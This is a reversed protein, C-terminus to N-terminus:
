ATLLRFLVAATLAVNTGTMWKLVKMDSGIGSMRSEFRAIEEAADRAIEDPAGAVKLADYTKPLMVAITVDRGKTYGQDLDHSRSIHPVPHQASLGIYRNGNDAERGEGFIM